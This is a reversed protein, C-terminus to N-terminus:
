ARQIGYRGSSIFPLLGSGIFGNLELPERSNRAAGSIGDLWGALAGNLFGFESCSVFIM